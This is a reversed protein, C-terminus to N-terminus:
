LLLHMNLKQLIIIRNNNENALKNPAHIHANNGNLMYFNLISEIVSLINSLLILTPSRRLFMKSKINIITSTAIEMIM